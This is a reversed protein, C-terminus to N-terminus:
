VIKIQGLSNTKVIGLDLLQRLTRQRYASVRQNNEILSLLTKQSKTLKIVEIKTKLENAISNIMEQIESRKYNKM